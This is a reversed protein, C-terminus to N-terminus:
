WTKLTTSHLGFRRQTWLLLSTITFHAATTNWTIGLASSCFASCKKWATRTVESNQIDVTKREGGAWCTSKTSSNSSPITSKLFFRQNMNHEFLRLSALSKDKGSGFKDENLIYKLRICPICNIQIHSGMENFLFVLRHSSKLVHVKRITIIWLKPSIISHSWKCPVPKVYFTHM